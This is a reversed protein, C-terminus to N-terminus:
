VLQQVSLQVLSHEQVVQRVMQVLLHARVVLQAIQVQRQVVLQLV